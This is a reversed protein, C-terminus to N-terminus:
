TAVAGIPPLMGTPDTASGSALASSSAVPIQGPLTAAQAATIEATILGDRFARALAERAHQDRVQEPQFAVGALRALKAARTTRGPMSDIIVRAERAVEGFLAAARKMKAAQESLATELTADAIAAEAAPRHEERERLAKAEADEAERKTALEEAAVFFRIRGQEALWSDQDGRELAARARAEAEERGKIAEETSLPKPEIKLAHVNSANKM